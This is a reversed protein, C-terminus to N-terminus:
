EPGDAQQVDEGAPPPLERHRTSVRWGAEALADALKEAVFVSRHRGGTCGIGIGLHAKGEEAYAPLVHDILDRLREFFGSFRPDAEVHVGVRSDRGTLPRLQPDWHPNRLFRVDFVLDLGRPAGRKYSFSQITIALGDQADLSLHARMEDRLDHPSLSTTDIVLDARGRLPGLLEMERAIAQEPDDHLALPHRRRTESFRNLLATQSCDLYVLMCSHDQRAGLDELLGLVGGASFERNRADLGLALPRALAPGALLRPVLSLPINDIAEFGFDELANIATTRGAGSPGTVIVVRAPNAESLSSGTTMTCM